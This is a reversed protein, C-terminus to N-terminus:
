TKIGCGLLSSIKRMLIKRFGGSFSIVPDGYMSCKRCIDPIDGDRWAQLIESIKLYADRLSIQQINGIHLKPDRSINRCSCLHIDGDPHVTLNYLISCPRGTISLRDKQVRLEGTLIEQTILGNWGDVATMVEIEDALEVVERMESSNMLDAIKMDGRLWINIEKPKELSNNERLLEMIGSRAQEYLPARCIRGYMKQDFGPFSINIRDPGDDLIKEIGVKHFLTGNTTMEIFKIGNNRLKKIKETLDPTLLPEGLDPSLMVDRIGAQRIDSLLKGFIHDPMHIKEESGSFQYPCFVCQLNCIRTLSLELPQITIDRYLSTPIASWFNKLIVTTSSRLIQKIRNEKKTVSISPM